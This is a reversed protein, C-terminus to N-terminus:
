RPLAEMNQEHQYQADYGRNYDFSMGSKHEVGIRCDRAGMLWDSSKEIPNFEEKFQDQVTQLSKTSM